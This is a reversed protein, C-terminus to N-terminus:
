VKKKVYSRPIKALASVNIIPHDKTGGEKKIEVEEKLLECYMEFGVSSIHGSQKYGFM